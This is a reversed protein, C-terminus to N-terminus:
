NAGWPERFLRTERLGWCPHKWPPLCPVESVPHTGGSTLGSSPQRHALYQPLLEPLGGLQWDQGTAEVATARIRGGLGADRHDQAM